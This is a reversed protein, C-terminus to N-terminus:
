RFLMPNTHSFYSVLSPRIAMSLVKSTSSRRLPVEFITVQTLLRIPGANADMSSHTDPLSSSQASPPFPPLFGRPPQHDIIPHLFRNRAHILPNGRVDTLTQTSILCECTGFHRLASTDRSNRTTISRDIRDPDRARVRELDDEAKPSASALRAFPVCTRLNSM